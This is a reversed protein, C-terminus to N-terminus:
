DARAPSAFVLSARRYRPPSPTPSPQTLRSWAGYISRVYGQTEAIAPVRWASRVRNPGANYAALALDYRGFTDLQQRLYRAGGRLNDYLDWPNAGIQRATGPMLQALGIAGKPSISLPQYRSEQVILADFLGVPLGQECAARHVLPFILRRRAEAAMSLGGHPRYAPAACEAPNLSPAALVPNRAISYTVFPNGLAAAGAGTSVISPEPPSTSAEFVANLARSVADGEAGAPEAAVSPPTPRPTTFDLLRAQRPAASAVSSAVAIAVLAFGTKIMRYSRLSAIPPTM